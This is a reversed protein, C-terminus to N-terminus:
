PKSRRKSPLRPLNWTTSRINHDVLYLQNTSTSRMEWGTPLSPLPQIPKRPVPTECRPMPVVSAEQESPFAATTSGTAVDCYYIRGNSTEKRELAEDVLRNSLWEHYHMKSQVYTAAEQVEVNTVKLNLTVRSLPGGGVLERTIM